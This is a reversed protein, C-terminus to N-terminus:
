CIIEYLKAVDSLEANFLCEVSWHFKFTNERYGVYGYKDFLETNDLYM